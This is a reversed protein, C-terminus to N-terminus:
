SQSRRRRGVQASPPEHGQQRAVLEAEVDARERGWRSESDARLQDPDSTAPGLNTTLISAPRQVEGAAFLKAVAEYAPLGMLDEATLSGGLERAFVAADDHSAQFVVRSRANALVAHKLEPPLQGLHQHALTLGLKYSRAEALITEVPTPLAVVHQFEDILAMVPPRQGAPLASRAAVADWLGSVLLAGLLYAAETGITGAALNVLLVERKAIIRTFDIAGATQGLVTRLRRRTTLAQVKNLLPAAAAVQEGDSWAEYQRWAAEVGFPDSIQKLLTHRFGRDVLLPEIECITMGAVQTLTSLCARLLADTRPGWNALWIRKMVGLVNEVATERDTASRLPNYGVALGGRGPDLVILDSQRSPPCRELISNILDGKPDVVVLGHGAALDQIAIQGLLTTKGTGTPGTIALNRFRADDSVAVPRGLQAPFNSEGLVTGHTPLALPAPLQRSRGLTLGPVTPGDIPWAIFQAAEEVNLEAPFITLPPRRHVLREAVLAPPLLRRRLMVGPARSAHLPAEVRRVLQRARGPSGAKAGVRGVALLLPARLKQRRAAVAESNTLLEADFALPQNSKGALRAPRAPWGATLLWQIVLQEGGALPQLAGLLGTSISQIDVRLPRRDTTTRYEVAFDLHEVPDSSASEYRVAPLQSQLASVVLGHVARPVVLRHSISGPEAVVEFGVVPQTVVRRWWPPLLGTLSNLFREVDEPKLSSPFHLQLIAPDAQVTATAGARLALASPPVAAASLLLDLLGNM